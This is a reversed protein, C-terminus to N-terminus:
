VWGYGCKAPSYDEGVTIFTPYSERIPPPCFPSTEVPPNEIIGSEQDAAQKGPKNKQNADYAARRSPDSLVEYAEILLKMKQNSTPDSNRDPHYKFALRRYAAVIVELEASPSVQLIDYYSQEPM